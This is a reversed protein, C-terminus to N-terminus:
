ASRAPWDLVSFSQPSFPAVRMNRTTSILIVPNSKREEGQALNSLAFFFLILAFTKM